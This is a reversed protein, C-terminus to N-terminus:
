SKWRERDLGPGPGPEPGPEGEGALSPTALPGVALPREARERYLRVQLLPGSALYVMALLFLAPEGNVLVLLLTCVAAVLSSFAHRRMLPLSRWNPYPLSSVMLLPLGVFGSALLFGGLASGQRVSFGLWDAFWYTMAVIGGAATSPIGVYHDRPVDVQVNFRALRLAACIPFLAALVWGRAGLLPELLWVYILLSPAVGYCIVDALSDYEVGFRTTSQTARAIRGDITDLIAAVMIAWAAANFRGHISQTISWFGLTLAGTTVLNPLLLVARRRDRLRRM